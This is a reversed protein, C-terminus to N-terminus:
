IIPDDLASMFLTKTKIEKIRHYCGCVKYWDMPNKFGRQICTIFEDYIRTRPYNEIEKVATHIDIGEKKFGEVISPNNLLRKIGRTMNKTLGIDYIEHLWNLRVNKQCETLVM